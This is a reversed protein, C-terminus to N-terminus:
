LIQLAEGPLHYPGEQVDRKSKKAKTTNVVTLLSKVRAREECLPRDVVKDVSVM